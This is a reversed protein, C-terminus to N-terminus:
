KSRRHSPPPCKRAVRRVGPLGGSGVAAPGRYAVDELPPCVPAYAPGPAKGVQRAEVPQAREGDDRHEEVV